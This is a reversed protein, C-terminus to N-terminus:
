SAISRPACRSHMPVRSVPSPRQKLAVLGLMNYAEPNQPDVEIAKQLEEIAAEVRRNKFSDVALQYHMQSQDPDRKARTACGPASLVAICTGMTLLLGKLSGITEDGKGLMRSLNARSVRGSALLFM